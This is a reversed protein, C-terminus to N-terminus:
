GIFATPRQEVIRAVVLARGDHLVQNAPGRIHVGARGLMRARADGKGMDGGATSGQGDRGLIEGTTTNKFLTTVALANASHCSQLASDTSAPQECWDDQRFVIVNKGDLGVDAAIGTNKTVSISLGTCAIADHSWAQASRLGASLYQDATMIPPPAGVYLNM